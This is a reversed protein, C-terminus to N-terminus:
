LAKLNEIVRGAFVAAGQREALDRAAELTEAAWRRTAAGSGLRAKADLRMVEAAYLRGERLEGAAKARDLDAVASQFLGARVAIDAKLTLAYPVTHLAGTACYRDIAKDLMELGQRPATLGRCWGLVFDAWALWFPFGHELCMTRAANALAAAARQDGAIQAATALVCLVHASTHPHGLRASLVLASRQADYAAKANGAIVQSWALHSLALAGQDTVYRFRLAAHRKEDYTELLRQYHEIATGVNGLMLEVSAIMRHGLLLHAESLASTATTLLERSTTRAGHFDARILQNTAMGWILDLRLEQPPSPLDAILGLARQFAARTDPAAIGRVKTLEVGLLKLLDAEEEPSCAEPAALKADLASNIHQLAHTHASSNIAQLAAQRWWRVASQYNSAKSDHMAVTEPRSKALTPFRTVITKAALGHLQRRRARLLSVYCADRMLGATFRYTAPRIPDHEIIGHAALRDLPGILKRQDMELMAALVGVDFTRGLVSAFRALPRLSGLADLRATLLGQLPSVLRFSRDLHKIGDPERCLRVLELGFLPNGEAMTAIRQLLDSPLTAAVECGQLISRVEDDRLPALTLTSVDAVGLSPLARRSALVLLVPLSQREGTLLRGLLELSRADALQADDIIIAMPAM